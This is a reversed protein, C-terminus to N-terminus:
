MILWLYNHQSVLCTKWLRSKVETQSILFLDVHGADAVLCSMIQSKKTHIVFYSVFFLLAALAGGFEVWVYAEYDMNPKSKYYEYLYRGDRNLVGGM